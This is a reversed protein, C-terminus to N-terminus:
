RSPESGKLKRTARRKPTFSTRVTPLPFTPAVFTIRLAPFTAPM